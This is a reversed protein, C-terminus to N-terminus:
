PSYVLEPVV